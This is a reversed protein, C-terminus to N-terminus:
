KLTFSLPNYKAIRSEGKMVQAKLKANEKELRQFDAKMHEEISVM